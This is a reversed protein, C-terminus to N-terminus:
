YRSFNGTDYRLLSAVEAARQQHRSLSVILSSTFITYLFTVIRCGPLVSLDIKQKMNGFMKHVLNKVGPRM